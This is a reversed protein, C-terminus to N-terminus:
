PRLNVLAQRAEEVFPGDPDREIASRLAQEAERTRRERAYAMGLHFRYLARYPAAKVAAELLAVAKDSKGSLHLAWGATDLVAPDEPAVELATNAAAIAEAPSREPGTALLWAANNCAPMHRSSVRLITRWSATAEAGHGTAGALLAHKTRADFPPPEDRAHEEYLARARETKGALLLLDALLLRGHTFGPNRELARECAAMAKDREGAREWLVPVLASAILCDPAFELIGACREAAIDHWGADVYVQTELLRRAIRRAEGPLRENLAVLDAWAALAIPPLVYERSVPGRAVGEGGALRMLPLVFGADCDLPDASVLRGVADIAERRKGDFFRAVALDLQIVRKRDPYRRLADEGVAAAAAYRGQHVHAALRQYTVFADPDLRTAIHGLTAVFRDWEGSARHVRAVLSHAAVSRPLAKVAEGAEVLAKDKEGRALHYDVLTVRAPLDGPSERLVDRLEKTGEGDRRQAFCFRAYACRLATAGPLAKRAREYVAQAEAPQGAAEHMAAWSLYAAVFEPERRLAEEFLKAALDYNTRAAEAQALLQVLQADNPRLSLAERARWVAADADGRELRLRAIRAAIDPSRPRLRLYHLLEREAEERLGYRMCFRAMIEHAEPVGSAAAVSKRLQELAQGVQGEAALLKALESCATFHHPEIKVAELFADRALDRQGAGLLALGLLYRVRADKDYISAVQRLDIIARDYRKLVLLAEGRVKSVELVLGAAGRLRPGRGGGRAESPRGVVVQSGILRSARDAEEVAEEMDGKALYCMALVMHALTQDGGSVLYQNSLAIANDYRRLEGCLEAARRLAELLAAKDRAGLRDQASLQDVVHQCHKLAQEPKDDRWFLEAAALRTRRSDPDVEIARQIHTIAKRLDGLRATALALARYAPGSKPELKLAAQAHEKAKELHARSEPAPEQGEPPLKWAGAAALEIEASLLFARPTTDHKAAEAGWAAASPLDGKAKYCRALGRLAQVDEADSRLAAEFRGIAEDYRGARFAILGRERPALFLQRFRWSQTVWVAGVVIGAAVLSLLAVWV